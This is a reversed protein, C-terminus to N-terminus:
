HSPLQVVTNLVKGRGHRSQFGSRGDGKVVEANQPGARILAERAKDFGAETLQDGINCSGGSLNIKRATVLDGVTSITFNFSQDALTIDEFVSAKTAGLGHSVYAQAEPQSTSLPWEEVMPELMDIQASLEVCIDLGQQTCKKEALIATWEGSSLNCDVSNERSLAQIKGEIDHLHQQLDQTTDSMM